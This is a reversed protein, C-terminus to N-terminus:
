LMVAFTLLIGGGNKNRDLRLPTTFGDFGFQSIPFSDDLKTETFMLIDIYHTLMIKMLDSKNRISNINLHGRIIQQPHNLRLHRLVSNVNCNDSIAPINNISSNYNSSNIRDNEHQENSLSIQENSDVNYWFMWIMSLLNGALVTSGNFNLHLGFTIAYHQQKKAEQKM